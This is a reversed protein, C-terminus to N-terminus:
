AQFLIRDPEGGGVEVAQLVHGVIPFVRDLVALEVVPRARPCQEIKLFTDRGRTQAFPSTTGTNRNTLFTRTANANVLSFTDLTLVLQRDYRYARARRLGDLRSEDVWFFVHKNLLRLWHGVTLGDALCKALKPESLPKQDRLTVRGHAVHRLTVSDSRRRGELREREDPEVEFMTLLESTSLLGHRRISEWSGPEAMHFVKPFRECFAAITWVRGM